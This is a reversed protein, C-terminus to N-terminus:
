TRAKHFSGDILTNSELVSVNRRIQSRNSFSFTRGTEENNLGNIFSNATISGNALQYDMFLSAGYRERNLM